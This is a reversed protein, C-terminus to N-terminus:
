WTRRSALHPQNSTVAWAILAHKRSGTRCLEPPSAISTSAACNKEAESAVKSIFAARMALSSAAAPKHCHGTHVNPPLALWADHQSTQVLLRCHFRTGYGANAACFWKDNLMSDYRTDRDSM